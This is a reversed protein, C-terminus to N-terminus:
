KRKYIKFATNEYVLNYEDCLLRPFYEYFEPFYIKSDKWSDEVGPDYIIYEPRKGTYYAFRGDAIHNLKPNLAFRAEASGMILEGPAANENLYNIAPRYFNGYTNQKVRLIVGGTQLLLFGVVGVILIPHPISRKNWMEAIWLALLVSYFPVIYILYVALKQGDLLSMLVFYIGTLILVIRCAKNERLSKTFITGLVGIAYGVLILSKLFIPGSHGATSDLMGFARPYRLTFERFLGTLPSSLGSTRGSMMANDIFQDKFAQPDKWVWLGFAAGGVLYPIAAVSVHRWSLNRFDFRIILFFLAVFALLGNFHTLGSLCVLTQSILIARLLNQERLNLYVAIGAFGLAACMTDGRGISATVLIVYNCAVFTMALAAKTRDGFLKLVIFYWSSILILGWFISVSRMAFLSFGFTKFAAAANLLFMPMVWYTRENIRTLPSKEIEFVTTGFNGNFALNQAPSAFGGEDSEPRTTLASACVLTLFVAIILAVTLAHANKSAFSDRKFFQFNSDQQQDFHSEM